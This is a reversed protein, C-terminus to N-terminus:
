PSCKLYPFSSPRLNDEQYLSSIQEKDYILKSRFSLYFSLFFVGRQSENEEEEQDMLM